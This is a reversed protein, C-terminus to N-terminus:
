IKVNVLEVIKQDKTVQIQITDPQFKCYYNLDEALLEWKLATPRSSSGSLYGFDFNYETFKLDPYSYKSCTPSTKGDKLLNKVVIKTGYDLDQLAVGEVYMKYYTSGNWNVTDTVTATLNGVFKSTRTLNGGTSNNTDSNNDMGMISITVILISIVVVICILLLIKNDIKM